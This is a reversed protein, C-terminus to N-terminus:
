TKPTEKADGGTEALNLSREDDVIGVVSWRAPSTEDNVMERAGLGDSSILVLDGPRAHLRDLALVPELTLSRLPQVLLLKAGVLSRHKVTSTGHGMVRALLMRLETADDGQV